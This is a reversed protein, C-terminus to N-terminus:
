MYKKQSVVSVVTYMCKPWQEFAIFDACDSVKWFIIINTPKQFKGSELLIQSTRPPSHSVVPTNGFKALDRKRSHVCVCVCVCVCQVRVSVCVCTYIYNHFFIFFISM